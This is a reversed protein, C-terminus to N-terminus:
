ASKLTKELEELQRLTGKLVANRQQQINIIRDMERICGEANRMKKHSRLRSMVQGVSLEESSLSTRSQRLLATAQRICEVQEQTLPTGQLRLQQIERKVDLSKQRVQAKLRNTEGENHIISGIRKPTTQCFSQWWSKGNSTNQSQVQKQNKGGARVALGPGAYATGAGVLVAIALLLPIFKKKLM